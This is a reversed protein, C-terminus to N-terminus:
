LQGARGPAAGQTAHAWGGGGDASGGGGQWRQPGRALQRPLRRRRREPRRQPHRHHPPHDGSPPSAPPLLQDAPVARPRRRPVHHLQLRSRAQQACRPPRLRDPDVRPARRVGGQHPGGRRRGQRGQEGGRGGQAGRLPERGGGMGAGGEGDAQQRAMEDRQSDLFCRGAPRLKSRVSAIEARVIDIDILSPLTFHAIIRWLLGLMASRDNKVIHQETIQQQVGGRRGGRGAVIDLNVGLDRLAGLALGVNHKKQLLSGAPFRSKSTISHEMDTTLVEVLRCLRVGNHLDAALNTVRFDFEDLLKQVYTVRYGLMGLHRTVDGEGSLYEKSFALVMDRSSKVEGDALFLCPGNDLINRQKAVDLLYVLRLFRSLTFTGMENAYEAGFTGHKTISYREAIEDDHLFRKKLFRRLVGRAGHRASSSSSSAAGGKLVHQQENNDIEIVEGYVTELGVRLWMPHYSGVLGLLAEQIGVDAHVERDKRVALRGNKIEEDISYLMDDVAETHYLSFARRRVAARRQKQLLGFHSSQRALVGRAAPSDCSGLRTGNATAATAAGCADDNEPPHLTHNFWTVFGAEQKETWNQDYLMKRTTTTSSSSPKSSSKSSKAGGRSLKLTKSLHSKKPVRRKALTVAAANSAPAASSSAPATASAAAATSKKELAKAGAAAEKSKKMKAARDLLHKPVRASLSATAVGADFTDLAEGSEGEGEGEGSAGAKEGETGKGDEDGGEDNVEPRSETKEEQPIIVMSVGKTEGGNVDGSEENGGETDEGELGESEGKRKPAALVLVPSPMSSKGSRSSESGKGDKSGAAAAAATVRGGRAAASSSSLSGLSKRGLQAKRGANKAALLRTSPASAGAGASSGRRTKRGKKKDACPARRSSGLMKVQCPHRGFKFRFLERFGGEAVAESPTWTVTVTAEAGAGVELASADCTFGKATAIKSLAYTQARGTPNALVVSRTVTTGPLVDGFDLEAAGQFAGFTIRRHHPLHPTAHTHSTM